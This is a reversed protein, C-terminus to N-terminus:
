YWISPPFARSESKNMQIAEREEREREREREREIVYLEWDRVVYGRGGEVWDGKLSVNFERVDLM